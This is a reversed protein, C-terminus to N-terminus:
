GHRPVRRGGVRGLELSIREERVLQTLVPRRSALNAAFSAPDNGVLIAGTGAIRERLRTERVADAVAAATTGGIPM